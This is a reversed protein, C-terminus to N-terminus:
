AGARTRTRRAGEVREVVVFVIAAAVVLAVIFWWPSLSTLESFTVKDTVKVGADVTLAGVELFRDKIYPYVEAYLGGGVVMGLLGPWAHRAGDGIAAVGTGPCFGLLAMGVGFILGGAINPLLAASKVHMPFDVGIARMGWIGVAGTIVATLMVKLVTFDELLFQGLITQYRTVGGKQLLFGFLLGTVVGATAMSASTVDFM